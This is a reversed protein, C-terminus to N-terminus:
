KYKQKEKPVYWEKPDLGLKHVKVNEFRKDIFSLRPRVRFFLYPQEEHLIRHFRHYMKIRKKEDLTPRADELIKDAEANAFSVHNSGRGEIQSSHWVQFADPTIVGGWALFAADHKKDYLKQEFISWELFDLEMEIGARSYYDKIARATRETVPSGSVAMLKFRFPVGDKDRIGDGDTDVWGAEDLLEKGKEPDYPWPEITKDSFKGFKYCHGSTLEGKGDYITDILEQKNVLMTMAQRVRRDKFYVKKQNWGIYGYAVRPDWYELCSAKELFEPDKSYKVFQESATRKYFDIEGALFAQLAALDNKIIKFVIKKLKPKKGWYNENRALVIKQATDWKEFVFPGSGVPNTYRDNFQMPDNFDYVHKPLVSMIGATELALFYPKHCIFKITREDIKVVEKFEQFYNALHASDISPNMITEYTFLVDDATVKVGDSFHVNDRIVFTIEKGDESVEYSEALLPELELTDWNYELLTEYVHNHYYGTIWREYVDRGTIPNLSAPEAPIHWILWDGEDGPGDDGRSPNAMAIQSESVTKILGDLRECLRDSQMISLGQIVVVIVLLVFILFKFLGSGSNM